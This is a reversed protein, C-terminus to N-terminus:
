RNNKWVHVVDYDAVGANIAEHDLFDFLYKIAMPVTDAGRTYDTTAYILGHFVRISCGPISTDRLHTYVLM